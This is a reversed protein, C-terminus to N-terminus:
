SVNTLCEEGCDRCIRNVFLGSPTQYDVFDHRGRASCREQSVLQLFEPNYPGIELEREMWDIRDATALRSIMRKRRRVVMIPTVVFVWLVGVLFALEIM